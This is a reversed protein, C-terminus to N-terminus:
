RNSDTIRWKTILGLACIQTLRIFLKSKLHASRLSATVEGFASRNTQDM